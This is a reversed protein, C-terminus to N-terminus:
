EGYMETILLRLTKGDDETLKGLKRGLRAESISRLQHLPYSRDRRRSATPM